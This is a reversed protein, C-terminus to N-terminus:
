DIYPEKKIKKYICRLLYYLNVVITIVTHFIAVYPNTALRDLGFAPSIASIFLSNYYSTVFYTLSLTVNLIFYLSLHLIQEDYDKYFKFDKLVVFNLLLIPTTLWLYTPWTMHLTSFQVYTISLLLAGFKYYAFFIYLPLCISYLVYGISIKKREKDEPMVRKLLKYVYILSIIIALHVILCIVLYFPFPYKSFLTGYVFIVSLIVGIVGVFGLGILIKIYHLLTRKRYQPRIYYRILLVTVCILEACVILGPISAIFNLGNWGYSYNAIDGFLFNGFYFNILSGIFCLVVFLTYATKRTM